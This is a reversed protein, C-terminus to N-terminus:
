KAFVARTNRRDTELQETLSHIDRFKREDRLRKVFEVEIQEDYINREFDLLHVEITKKEPDKNVTPRTGINLMGYYSEEKLRAIVAYVGDAPVMKYIEGPTINATPFGISTGLKSGGVVKGSFSYRWGLLKNALALDGNELHQRIGSSSVEGSELVLPPVKEISFGFKGACDVLKNYDGERDRGFRHNFGVVLHRIGLKGVLYKEIFDCSSLRSFDRTFPIVVMHDLGAGELMTIKEDMTNLLRFNEDVKNLINRPHPWLTVLTSEGGHLGAAERLKELIFRHGRHVGDFIGVTVVPNIGSFEDINNYLNM